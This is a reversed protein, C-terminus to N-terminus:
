RGVPRLAAATSEVYTIQLVQGPKLSALRQQMKPDRVPLTRVANPGKVTITNNATDVSLIEGSVTMQRGVSAGAGMGGSRTERETMMPKSGAPLMSVTYGEYYTIDVKDGVKIRDFDKISPPVEVTTTQGNDNQLTVERSNSDIATVKATIRTERAAGTDTHTEATSSTGARATGEVAAAGGILTAAVCAVHAWRSVLSTMKM